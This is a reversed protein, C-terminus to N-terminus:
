LKLKQSGHQVGKPDLQAVLNNIRRHMRPSGMHGGIELSADNQGQCARVFCPPHLVVPSHHQLTPSPFVFSISCYSLHLGETRMWTNLIHKKNSIRHKKQEIFIERCIYYHKGSSLHKSDQLGPLKTLRCSTTRKHHNTIVKCSVWISNVQVLLAFQNSPSM